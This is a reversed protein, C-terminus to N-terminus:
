RICTSAIMVAPAWSTLSPSFTLGSIMTGRVTSASSIRRKRRLGQGPDRLLHLFAQLNRHRELEPGHDFRRTGGQGGSSDSALRFEEAEAGVVQGLHGVAEATVVGFTLEKTGIDVLPHQGCSGKALMSRSPTPSNTRIATSRRAALGPGVQFDADTALVAAVGAADGEAM